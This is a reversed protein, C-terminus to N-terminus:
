ELLNFRHFFTGNTWFYSLNSSNLLIVRDTGMFVQKFGKETYLKKTVKSYTM